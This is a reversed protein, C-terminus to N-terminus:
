VRTSIAIAPAATQAHRGLGTYRAAQGPRTARATQAAAALLNIVRGQAALGRTLLSQNIRSLQEMRELAPRLRPDRSATPRLAALLAVAERKENTLAAAARLDMALLATNEHEMIRIVTEIADILGPTM